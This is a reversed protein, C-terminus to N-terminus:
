QKNSNADPLYRRAEPIDPLVAISTIFKLPTDNRSQRESVHMM